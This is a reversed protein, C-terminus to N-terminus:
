HIFFLFVFLYVWLLGMFHWYMGNTRIRITDGEHIVGKRIRVYNVILYILGLGLHLIHILVLVFIMAGVNNKRTIVGATIPKLQDTDGPLFYDAGDFTLKEGNLQVYYDVGYEGKLKSLNNWSMETSGDETAVKTIGMGRDSLDQWGMYQTVTFGIGLVFTLLVMTGSTGMNGQRASRLAMIMTASSAVLMGISLYMSLPPTAHVIYKGAEMVLIASTFGAFLMVIAFIIWSMLMKKTRIRVEPSFDDFVNPKKSAAVKPEQESM